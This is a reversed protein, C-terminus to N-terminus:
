SRFCTPCITPADVGYSKGNTAILWFRQDGRNSGQVYTDHITINKDGDTDEEALLQELNERVDVIISTREQPGAYAQETEPGISLSGFFILWSVVVVFVPRKHSRLETTRHYTNAARKNGLSIWRIVL